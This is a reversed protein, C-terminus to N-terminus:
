SRVVNAKQVDECGDTAMMLVPYAVPSAGPVASMVASNPPCTPVAEKVTLPALGMERTTDGAAVLRSCPPKVCNVAKASKLSPVVLSTVGQTVQVDELVFTAATVGVPTTVLVPEPVVLTVAVM